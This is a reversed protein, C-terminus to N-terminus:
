FFDVFYFAARLKKARKNKVKCRNRPQLKEFLRSNFFNMYLELSVQKKGAFIIHVNTLRALMCTKDSKGITRVGAM